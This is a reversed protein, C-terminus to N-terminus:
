ALPGDLETLRRQLFRREPGATALELSRETAARAEDASVVWDVSIGLPKLGSQVLDATIADDEVYLVRM